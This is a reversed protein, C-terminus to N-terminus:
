TTDPPRAHVVECVIRRPHIRAIIRTERERREIPYVLGYFRQHETYRWTLRDLQEVAGDEILDVDGRVEIRRITDEPDVAL